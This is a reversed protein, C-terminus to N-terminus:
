QMGGGQRNTVVFRVTTGSQVGSEITLAGGILRARERMGLLGYHGASSEHNTDFGRGNDVIDLEVQDKHIVFRIHVQTAQAHRTINSLAESLISLAHDGVEASLQNEQVSLELECPIGTGQSFRDV